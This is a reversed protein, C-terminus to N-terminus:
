FNESGLSVNKLSQTNSEEIQVDEHDLLDFKNPSIIQKEKRKSTRRVKKLKFPKFTNCPVEKMTVGDNESTVEIHPACESLM